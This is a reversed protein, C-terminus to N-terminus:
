APSYLFSVLLLLTSSKAPYQLTNKKSWLIFARPLDFPSPLYVGIRICGKGGTTLISLRGFILPRSGFSILHSSFFIFFCIEGYLVLMHWKAFILVRLHYRSLTDRQIWERIWFIEM